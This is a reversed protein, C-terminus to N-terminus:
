NKVKSDIQSYLDDFEAEDQAIDNLLSQSYQRYLLEALAHTAVPVKTKPVISGNDEIDYTALLKRYGAEVQEDDIPLQGELMPHANLVDASGEANGSRDYLVQVLLLQYLLSRDAIDM